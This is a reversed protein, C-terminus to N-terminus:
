NIQGSIDLDDLLLEHGTLTSKSGARGRWSRGLESLVCAHWQSNLVGTGNQPSVM